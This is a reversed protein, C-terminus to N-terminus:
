GEEDETLLGSLAATFPHKRDRGEHCTCRQHNLNMGCSPCLGKCDEGCLFRMPMELLLADKAIVDLEIEYGSLPYSDPDSVDPNKAFVEDVNAQVSAEVGGLCLACHALVKARCVGTVKVSEGAGVFQGEIMVDEFAIEDQLIDMPSIAVEVSLPYSQGPNKLADRVDLKM